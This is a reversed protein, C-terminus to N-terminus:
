KEFRIGFCLLFPMHEVVVIEEEIPKMQKAVLREGREQVFPEIVDKHVFILVGVPQLGRNEMAHPREIVVEGDHDAIICLM